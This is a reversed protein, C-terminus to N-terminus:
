LRCPRPGPDPTAPSAARRPSSGDASRAGATSLDSLSGSNMLSAIDLQAPVRVPRDEMGGPEGYRLPYTSDNLLWIRSSHRLM